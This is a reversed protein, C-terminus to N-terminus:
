FGSSAPLNLEQEKKHNRNEALGRRASSPMIRSRTHAPTRGLPVHRPRWLRTKLRSSAMASRFCPILQRFTTLVSPIGMDVTM